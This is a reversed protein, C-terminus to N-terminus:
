KGFKKNRQAVQLIGDVLIFDVDENLLILRKQKDDEAIVEGDDWRSCRLAACFDSQRM